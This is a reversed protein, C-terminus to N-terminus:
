LRASRLVPPHFRRAGKVKGATSARIWGIGNKGLSPRALPARVTRWSVPRSAKARRYDAAMGAVPPVVEGRWRGGMYVTGVSLRERRRDGQTRAGANRGNVCCGRTGFVARRSSSCWAQRVAEAVCTSSPQSVCMLPPLGTTSVWRGAGITISQAAGLGRAECHGLHERRPWLARGEVCGHARRGRARQEAVAVAEAAVLVRQGVQAYV